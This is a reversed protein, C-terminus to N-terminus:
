SHARQQDEVLQEVVARASDRDLDAQDESQDRASGDGDTAPHLHLLVYPALPVSPALTSRASRPRVRRILFPSSTAARPPTPRSTEVKRGQYEDPPSLTVAQCANLTMSM